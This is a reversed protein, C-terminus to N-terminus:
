GCFLLSMDRETVVEGILVTWAHTTQDQSILYDSISEKYVESIAIYVNGGYIGCKTIYIKSCNRTLHRVISQICILSVNFIFLKQIYSCNIKNRWSLWSWLWWMCFVVNRRFMLFVLTSSASDCVWLGVFMCKILVLCPLVVASSSCVVVVNLHFM